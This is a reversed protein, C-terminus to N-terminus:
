RTPHFLAQYQCNDSAYLTTNMAAPNAAFCVMFSGWGDFSYARDVSDTQLHVHIATGYTFNGSGEWQGSEIVISKMVPNTTVSTVPYGHRNGNNLPVFISVSVKDVYRIRLHITEGVPANEAITIEGRGPSAQWYAPCETCPVANQIAPASWEYSGASVVVSITRTDLASYTVGNFRVTFHIPYANDRGAGLFDVGIASFTILYKTHSNSFGASSQMASAFLLVGVSAILFLKNGSFHVV